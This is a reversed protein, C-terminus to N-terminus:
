NHLSASQWKQKLFSTTQTSSKQWGPSLIITVVWLDWASSYRRKSKPFSSNDLLKLLQHTQPSSRKSLTTRCLSEVQRTGFDCRKTILKLVAQYICQFNARFNRTLDTANKAAIGIDDVYQACKYAEAVPDLYDRM